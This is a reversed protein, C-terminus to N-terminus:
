CAESTNASNLALPLPATVLCTLFILAFVEDLEVINCAVNARVTVLYQHASPPDSKLRNGALTQASSKALLASICTRNNSKLLRKKSAADSFCTYQSLVTIRSVSSCIQCPFARM